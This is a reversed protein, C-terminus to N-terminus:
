GAVARLTTSRTHLAGRATCELEDLMQKQEVLRRILSAAQAVTDENFQTDQNQDALWLLEAVSKIEDLLGGSACQVAFVVGEPDPHNSPDIFLDEYHVGKPSVSENAM